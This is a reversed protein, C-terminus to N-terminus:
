FTVNLGIAYTKVQPYIEGNNGPNLADPDPNGLTEPDFGDPFESNTITLLNDATVYVRCKQLGFKNIFSEPLSYGLQINKLRLYSANYTFFSSTVQNRGANASHLTPYSANTNEPSWRDLHVALTKGGNSFPHAARDILSNQVRGVGQFFLSLDLGKYDAGFNFGYFLKPTFTGLSTRDDPDIVGDPQGTLNGNEDRGNIDAYRIDGPVPTGGLATQDPASAIEADNQFLGLAEYGFINNIPDGVSRGPVEGNEPLADITPAKLFNTMNYGISYRFDDGISGNYNFSMEIGRAISSAVNSPPASAGFSGPLPVVALIDDRNESFYDFSFQFSSNFLAADLGVNSKTITEWRLDPNAILGERFSTQLQGGAQYGRGARFTPAYAFNSVTGNVIVEQNGLQGWSGRLKLQNLEEIRFFEENALNWGLSFSPFVEKRNAEAFRSTADQRLTFEFLYRDDFNYNLRGFYSELRYLEVDSDNTATDPDGLALEDSVNSSPLGTRATQTLKFDDQISNHGLLAKIYHKGFTKEYTLLAQLNINTRRSEQVEIRSPLGIAESGDTNYLQLFRDFDNFNRYDQNIAAIGKINLGELIKFEASVSGLLKDELTRQLGGENAEAVSNHENIFAVFNGDSNRIPVTPHERFNKSYISGVGGRPEEVDRRTLAVNYGLTLRDNIKQDLNLRFSYRRYNTNPILGETDLYGLSASYNFTDSGGSLALHHRQTFGDPTLLAGLWDTSPASGNQFAQLQEDTFEPANGDNVLAENRLTAYDFSNTFTPTETFEQFGFSTSYNVMLAGSRGRKTTVIIVGNGGRVGYIAASSADKLVSISAIDIPDINNLTSEVGDVIILPSNSGGFTTNGRISINSEDLGPQGGGSFATVGSAQGALLNSVNNVPRNELAADDIVEVSGTLNIKRQTGFGVVVVEELAGADEQLNISIATQGAVQVEQTTFGLYSVVLVANQDAVSISFNGDFDSQTGNTTGKEVINAGPLPAGNSDSITGSIQLQYLKPSSDVQKQSSTPYTAKKLIIHKNFVEYSVKGDQFIRNLIVHIREKKIKLTLKRDLNVDENKYFFRFETKSEIESFVEALTVQALDLSIKTNQSYGSNAQIQFLAVILFFFTLKMKLDLEPVIKYLWEMINPKKM